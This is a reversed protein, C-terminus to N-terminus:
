ARRSGHAKAGTQRQGGGDGHRDSDGGGGRDGVDDHFALQALLDVAGEPLAGGRDLL